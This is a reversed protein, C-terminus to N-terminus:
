LGQRCRAPRQRPIYQVTPTLEGRTPSYLHLLHVYWESAPIGAENCAYCPPKGKEHLCKTRMRRCRLSINLPRQSERECILPPVFRRCAIASRRKIIRADTSAEAGNANAQTHAYVPASVSAAAPSSVSGSASASEAQHMSNAAAPALTPDGADSHSNSTPKSRRGLPSRPPNRPM